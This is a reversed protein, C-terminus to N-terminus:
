NTQWPRGYQKSSGNYAGHKDSVLGYSSDSINKATNKDSDDKQKPKLFDGDLLFDTGTTM